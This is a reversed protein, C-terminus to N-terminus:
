ENYKKHTIKLNKCVEDFTTDPINVPAFGHKKAFYAMGEKINSQWDLRPRIVSNDESCAQEGLLDNSDVIDPWWWWAPAGGAKVIRYSHECHEWANNFKEDMLGVENLIRRTYMCFAGVCHTYLAIKSDTYDIQIRPNSKGQYKNAPGHGHWLFHQLGTKKSATIYKQYVDQSKVLIDDEIIFIYDCDRSLLHAMAKNKSYGVGRNKENQLYSFGAKLYFGDTYPTGDNVIVIEDVDSRNDVVSKLTKDFMEKRNYTVIGVGIKM